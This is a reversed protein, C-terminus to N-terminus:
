RILRIDLDLNLESWVRDATFIPLQLKTALALCARDAFALNLHKTLPRLRAAESAQVACFESPTLEFRDVESIADAIQLGGEVLKRYVESLNVTSIIAKDLLGIADEGGREELMVALVTSADVIHTM